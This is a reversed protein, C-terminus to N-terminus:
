GDNASSTAGAFDEGQVKAGVSVEAQSEQIDGSARRGVANRNRADQKRYGEAIKEAEAVPMSFVVDAGRDAEFTWGNKVRQNAKFEWDDRDKPIRYVRRGESVLKQEDVKVFTPVFEGLQKRAM